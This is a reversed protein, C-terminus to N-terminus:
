AWGATLARAREVDELFDVEGWEEGSIDLTEVRERQALAHVVKLYWVNTGESTRMVREVERRFRVVLVVNLALSLLVGLRVGDAPGLAAVLLPGCVLSFGIGSVSQALAGVLVSAVVAVTLM